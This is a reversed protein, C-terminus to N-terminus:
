APLCGHFADNEFITFTVGAFVPLECHNQRRGCEVAAAPFDTLPRLGVKYFIKLGDGGAHRVFGQESRRKFTFHIEPFVFGSKVMGILFERPQPDSRAMKEPEDGGALLVPHQHVRIARDCLESHFRVHDGLDIHLAITQLKM